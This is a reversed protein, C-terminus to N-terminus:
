QAYIADAVATVPITTLGTTAPGSLVDGTTPSFKSHHLPCELVGDGNLAINNAGKHPCIDVYAMYQGNFNVVKAPQGKYTFDYATGAPVDSTKAILQGSPAAAATTTPAPDSPAGSASKLTTATSSSAQAPTSPVLPGTLPNIMYWVGKVGQGKVDGPAKDQAFHYLPMNVYAVQLTGDTRNVLSLKGPVGEGGKLEGTALLPPWNKACEGYCTSLGNDSQFMYLTMGMSDVLVTGLPSTAVNVKLPTQAAATAPTQGVASYDVPTTGSEMCGLVLVAMAIAAALMGLKTNKM